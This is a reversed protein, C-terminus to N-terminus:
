RMVKEVDVRIRLPTDLLEIRAPIKPTAQFTFGSKLASIDVTADITSTKDVLGGPGRITTTSTPGTAGVVYYNAMRYGTALHGVFNVNVYVARKQRLPRVEVTANRESLLDPLTSNTTRSIITLPAQVIGTREVDDPNVTVIPLADEVESQPGQLTVRDPVLLYDAPDAESTSDGGSSSTLRLQISRRATLPREVRASFSGIQTFVLEQLGAPRHV